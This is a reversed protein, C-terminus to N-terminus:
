SYFDLVHLLGFYVCESEQRLNVGPTWGKYNEIIKKGKEIDDFSSFLSENIQEYRKSGDTM